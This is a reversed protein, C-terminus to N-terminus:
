EKAEILVIRLPLTLASCARAICDHYHKLNPDLALDRTYFIVEDVAWEELTKEVKRAHIAVEDATLLHDYWPILADAALLGFEGSLIGFGENQASSLEFVQQIRASQYRIRAPLFGPDPKKDAACYTLHLV